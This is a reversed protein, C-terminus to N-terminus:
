SVEAYCITFAVHPSDAAALLASLYDGNYLAFKPTWEFSAGPRLKVKKCPCFSGGLMASITVTHTVDDANYINVWHVERRSGDNVSPGGILTVATVGNFQGNSSVVQYSM